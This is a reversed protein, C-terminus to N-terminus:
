SQRMAADVREEWWHESNHDGPMLTRAPVSRPPPSYRLPATPQDRFPCAGQAVGRAIWGAGAESEPRRGSEHLHLLSPIKDPIWSPVGHRYPCPM